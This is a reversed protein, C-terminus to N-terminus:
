YNYKVTAKEKADRKEREAQENIFVVKEDKPKYKNNSEDYDGLYNATSGLAGKMRIKDKRNDLKRSNIKYEEDDKFVRVSSEVGGEYM